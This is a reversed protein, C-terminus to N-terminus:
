DIRTSCTSKIKSLNKFFNLKRKLNTENAMVYSRLIQFFYAIYYKSQKVYHVFLARLSFIIRFTSFM